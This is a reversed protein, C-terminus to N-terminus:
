MTWCVRVCVCAWLTWLVKLSRQCNEFCVLQRGCDALFYYCCYYFVVVAGVFTAAVLVFIFSCVLFFFQIRLGFAAKTKSSCNNLNFRKKEIFESSSTSYEHVWQRLIYYLLPIIQEIQAYYVLSLMSFECVNQHFKFSTSSYSSSSSSVLFDRKM